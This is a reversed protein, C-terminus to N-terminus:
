LFNIHKSVETQCYLLVDRFPLQKSTFSEDYDLSVPNLKLSRVEKADNFVLRKYKEVLTMLKSTEQPDPPIKM